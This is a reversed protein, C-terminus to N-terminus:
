SPVVFQSPPNQTPLDPHDVSSNLGAVWTRDMSTVLAQQATQLDGGRVAQLISRHFEALEELKQRPANYQRITTIAFAFLQPVLRELIAQLYSNGAAAWLASHFAYDAEKFKSLDGGQATEAMTVYARELGVLNKDKKFVLWELALNEMPIRVAYIADIDARTLVTVFTKRNKRQVFGRARLEILAERVTAQGVRLKKALGTEILPEGPKLEGAMIAKKIAQFVEHTLSHHVISDEGLASQIAM